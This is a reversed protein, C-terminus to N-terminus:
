LNLRGRPRWFDRDDGSAVAATAAAHQEAPGDGMLLEYTAMSGARILDMHGGSRSKALYRGRETERWAAREAHLDLTPDSPHALEATRVLEYLLGDAPVLREPSQPFEIVTIGQDALMNAPIEFFRPDYVVSQVRWRTAITGAITRFVDLHDIRGDVPAWGRAWWGVRGDSLRGAVVVGVHDSHLAMDVGVVVEAGDDPHADAGAACESWAGPLELLWSDVPTDTWQCLYLRRAESRPMKRSLIERARVDVSWTVDAGRMERLAERCEHPDDLDWDEGAGAWDLLFRSEPDDAELLGRAYLRWLLPDWDRPPLTGKGVGAMSIGISRGPDPTRKTLSATLVTHLRAKRGTWEALEDALVLSAKGGENTGAVAAVRQIRGPRGDAFLIETDFVDYLGALPCSIEEGKAGGAMIQAQRFLEGAQDFSAAAMQVIPTSPRRIPDPGVMELHALGALMETKVAGREAGILAELYWWLAAGPDCEFWRWLFERHWPLLRYPQGYRDGEGHVLMKEMWRCALGGHSDRLALEDTM